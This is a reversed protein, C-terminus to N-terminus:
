DDWPGEDILGALTATRHAEGADALSRAIAGAARSAAAPAPKPSYRCWDAHWPLLRRCHSCAPM